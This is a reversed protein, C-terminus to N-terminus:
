NLYIFVYKAAPISESILLLILNLWYDKIVALFDELDSRIDYQLVLSRGYNNNQDEWKPSIGKQFLNLGM